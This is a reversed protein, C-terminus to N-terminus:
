VLSWSSSAVWLQKAVLLSYFRIKLFGQYTEINHQFYANSMSISTFNVSFNNYKKLLLFSNVWSLGSKSLKPQSQCCSIRFSHQSTSYTQIRDEQWYLERPFLAQMNYNHLWYQMQYCSASVICRMVTEYIGKRKLLITKPRNQDM